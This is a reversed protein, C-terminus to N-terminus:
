NSMTRVFYFSKIQKTLVITLSSIAKNGVSLATVTTVAVAWALWGLWSGKISDMGSGSWLEFTLWAASSNIFQSPAALM